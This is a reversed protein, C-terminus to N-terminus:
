GLGMGDGSGGGGGKERAFWGEGRVGFRVEKGGVGRDGGREGEDIETGGRGQLVFVVVWCPAAEGRPAYAVLMRYADQECRACCRLTDQWLPVRQM